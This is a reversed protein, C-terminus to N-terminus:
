SQKHCSPSQSSARPADRSRSRSGHIGLPLKRKHSISSENQPHYPSQPRSAPGGRLHVYGNNDLSRLQDVNSDVTIAQLNTFSPVHIIQREGSVIGLEMEHSYVQASTPSAITGQNNVIRNSFVGGTRATESTNLTQQITRQAEQM